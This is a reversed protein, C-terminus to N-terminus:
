YQNIIDQSQVDKCMHAPTNADRQSKQSGAMFIISSNQVSLWQSPTVSVSVNIGDTQSNLFLVAMKQSTVKQWLQRTSIFYCTFVCCCRSQSTVSVSIDYINLKPKKLTPFLWITHSKLWKTIYCMWFQALLIQNAKNTALYYSKIYPNIHVCGWQSPVQLTILQRQWIKPIEHLHFAAILEHQRVGLLNCM